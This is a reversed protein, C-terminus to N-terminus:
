GRSLATELHNRAAPRCIKGGGEDAKCPLRRVIVPSGAPRVPAAVPLQLPRGPESHFRGPLAAMIDAMCASGAASEWTRRAARCAARGPM